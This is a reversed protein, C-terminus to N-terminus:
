PNFLQLKPDIQMADYLDTSVPRPQGNLYVEKGDPWKHAHVFIVLPIIKGDATRHPRLLVPSAFRGKNNGTGFEWNNTQTGCRQIIPLGLAARYTPGNLNLGYGADHDAQAYTFGNNYPPLNSGPKANRHDITRGHSRWGKLWNGLSQLPDNTVSSLQCIAIAHQSLNFAALAAKLDLPTTSIPSIAGYGRRSRFGLSGLHSFVTVLSKIDTWINPEGRWTLSLTFSGRELVGRGKYENRKPNSRLPFLLYGKESLMPAGMQDADKVVTSTLATTRIILKSATGEDGAASGFILAEQERLPAPALSKFGGLTRFWWRLQGRISPARIEAVTQDAGACFCPTLLELTYTTTKM